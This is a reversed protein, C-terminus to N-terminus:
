KISSRWTTELAELPTGYVEVWPRRLDPAKADVGLHDNYEAWLRRFRDRGRSRILWRVFSGTLAYYEADGAPRALLDSLAPITGERLARRPLEERRRDWLSDDAHSAAFGEVLGPLRPPQKERRNVAFFSVVQAIAFGPAADARSYYAREAPQVFALARELISDAQAQDNFFFAEIRGDVSADLEARVREFAADLRRGFGAPDAVIPSDPPCFVTHTVTEFRRWGLLGRVLRLRRRVEPSAGGSPDAAARDGEDCAALADAANGSKWAACAVLSCGHARTRPNQRLPAAEIMLEPYKRASLLIECLAARFKPLDKPRQPDGIVIRLAERILEESREHIGLDRLRLAEKLRAEPDDRRDGQTFLALLLVAATM